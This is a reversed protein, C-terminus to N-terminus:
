KLSLVDKLPKNNIFISVQQVTSFQLATKTLQAEVRPNDCEGGLMLSGSLYITATGNDIRVSDLPLNSQYLADYLGSQGYDRTKIALLAQMAAKLVGQTPIIEVDVAVASDGCGILDGSIGNDGIAILYIKVMKPGSPTDAAAQTPPLDTAPPPDSVETPAPPESTDTPAQATALPLQTSALTPSAAPQTPQPPQATPTAPEIRLDFTGCATLLFVILFVLMRRPKM